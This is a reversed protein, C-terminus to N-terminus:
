MLHFLAIAVANSANLSDVGAQRLLRPDATPIRVRYNSLDEVMRRLGYGESGVVLISPKTLRFEKLNMSQNSLSLSIVAMDTELCKTLFRPMSKCYQISMWEMAGASAKSVTPTLGCSNRRCIITSVVGFYACSRLIAGMNMPDTLEDMAVYLPYERFTYAIPSPLLKDSIPIVEELSSTELVINNHPRNQSLSNLKERNVVQIPPLKHMLPSFRSDMIFDSTMYLSGMHSRKSNMLAAIVPGTGYLYELGKKMDTKDGTVM